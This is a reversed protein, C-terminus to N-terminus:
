WSLVDLSVSRFSVNNPFGNSIVLAVWITWDKFALTQTHTGTPEGNSFLISIARVGRGTSQLKHRLVHCVAELPAYNHQASPWNIITKLGPPCITTFSFAHFPRHTGRM